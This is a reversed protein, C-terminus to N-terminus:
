DKICELVFFVRESTRKPENFSLNDFVGKVSFGCKTAIKKIKSISHAKETHVESIRNYKGSEDNVFMDLYMTLIKDEFENQWVFFANESEDSFINNGLIIKMKYPTSIDFVYLGNPVLYNHMLKFHKEIEKDSLLYNISDLSSYACDVTGYLEFDTMSQCLYLINTENEKQRAINLMSVSSDVGIMDYDKAMLRTLTGTGCCMDLVIKPNKNYKKFIKIYYDRFKEYPIDYAFEDYYNSFDNYM